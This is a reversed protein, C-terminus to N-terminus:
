NSLFGNMTDDYNGSVLSEEIAVTSLVRQRTADFAPCLLIQSTTVWFSSLMSTRLPMRRRLHFGKEHLLKQVHADLGGSRKARRLDQVALFYNTDGDLRGM